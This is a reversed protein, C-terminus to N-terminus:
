SARRRHASDVASAQRGLGARTPLQGSGGVNSSQSRTLGLAPLEGALQAKASLEEQLRKAEERLRMARGEARAEGRMAM